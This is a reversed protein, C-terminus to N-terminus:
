SNTEVHMYILGPNLGMPAFEGLADRINARRAPDRNAHGIGMEMGDEAGELIALPTSLSLQAFGPDQFRTSVFIPLPHPVTSSTPVCRYNRPVISESGYYCFRVYGTQRFHTNVRGTLISNEAQISRVDCKGFITCGSIAADMNPTKLVLTGVGSALGDSSLDEGLISQRITLSGGAEPLDIKAVICRDVVMSLRPNGAPAGLAQDLTAGSAGITCNYLGLHGLDGDESITVSGGIALGDLVLSGGPDTGAEGAQITLPELLVPRRHIPSLRRVSRMAIGDDGKEAPWAAAVIALKSAKPLQITLGPAPGADPYTGNDLIAILGRMGERASSNWLDVADRLSTVVSEGGSADGTVDGTMKSVCIRWPLSEGDDVLEPLWAELSGRRDYAGGGIAFCQAHAFGLEVSKGEDETHLSLRGLVPDVIVDGTKAPRHWVGQPDKELNGCFIREPSVEKDDLRIRFPPATEFWGGITTGTPHAADLAADVEERSLPAPVTRANMRSAVSRDAAPRNVLPLDRGLPDFRLLGPESTNRRPQGGGLYGRYDPGPDVVPWIPAAAHRWIFLGLHPLNYRGSWGAPTGAAAGHAMASFPSRSTRAAPHRVDAFAPADLRVHNMSQSTALRQFFEVAVVSWGSVDRAVQEIVAATGKAQRYQLVNAIYARLLGPQDEGIDRMPSAGVLQAIYPLVWPECTEVFWNDYLHDIDAEIHALEDAFIALLAELPSGQEADRSRIHSPLRQFLPARPRNRM